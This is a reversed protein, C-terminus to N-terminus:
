KKKSYNQMTIAIVLLIWYIQSGVASAWLFWDTVGLVAFVFFIYAVDGSATRELFVLLKSNEQIKKNTVFILLLVTTIVAGFVLLGTALLYNHEPGARYLGIGLGVFVAIYVVVDGFIDLYKGFETQSFTMRAVAGDCYDLFRSIILLFSGGLVWLYGINAIMLAGIFGVLISATTIMNPSLGLHALILSIPNTFRRRTFRPFNSERQHSGIAQMIQKEIDKAIAKNTVHVCFKQPPLEIKEKINSFLLETLDLPTSLGMFMNKLYGSSVISLGVGTNGLGNHNNIIESLGEGSLVMDGYICLWIDVQNLSDTNEKINSLTTTSIHESHAISDLNPNYKQECFVWLIPGYLGEKKMQKTLRLPIVQGCVNLSEVHKPVLIIM